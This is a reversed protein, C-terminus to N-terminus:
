IDLKKPGDFAEANPLYVTPAGGWIGEANLSKEYMFTLVEILKAMSFEGDEFESIKEIIEAWVQKNHVPDNYITVNISVAKIKEPPLPSKELALCYIALLSLVAVLKKM